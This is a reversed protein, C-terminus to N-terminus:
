RRASCSAVVCFQVRTSYHCHRSSLHEIWAIPRVWLRPLSSLLKGLGAEATGIGLKATADLWHVHITPRPTELRAAKDNPFPIRPICRRLRVLVRSALLATPKVRSISQFELLRM